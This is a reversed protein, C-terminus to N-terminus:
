LSEILLEFLTDYFPGALQHLGRFRQTLRLRLERVDIADRRHPLQRGRNGMFDVLREGGHDGIGIGAQAPEAALWSRSSARATQRAPDDLVAIAGASIM